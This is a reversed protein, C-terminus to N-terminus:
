QQEVLGQHGGQSRADNKLGQVAMAMALQVTMDSSEQNSKNQPSRAEALVQQYWKFKSTGDPAVVEDSQLHERWQRFLPQTAAISAFPDLGEDLLVSGDNAVSELLAEVADLVPGHDYISWDTLKSSCGCLWRWPMSLVLDWLTLVRTLAVMEVCSLTSWLFDELINSHGPTFVLERLFTTALVRNAFLPVAGDFTLDQRGGGAREFPLFFAANRTTKRWHEFDKGKGKAYEGQHHFEKYM